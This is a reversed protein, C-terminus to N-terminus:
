GSLLTISVGPIGVWGTRYLSSTSKDDGELTIFYHKVEGVADDLIHAFNFYVEDGTCNTQHSCESEEFLILRLHVRNLESAVVPVSYALDLQKALSLNYYANAPAFHGFQSLGGWFETMEVSYNFTLVGEELELLSAEESANSRHYYPQTWASSTVGEEFTVGTDFVNAFMDGTGVCSLQDILIILSNETEVHVKWERIHNLQLVGDGSSDSEESIWDENGFAIRIEKWGDSRELPIMNSSFMDLNDVTSEGYDDGLSVVVSPSSFNEEKLNGSVSIKYWLSLYEAGMCHYAADTTTSWGFTASTTNAVTSNIQISSNGFLAVESLSIVADMGESDKDEFWIYDLKEFPEIVYSVEDATKFASAVDHILLLASCSAAILSFKMKLTDPKLNTLRRCPGSFGM